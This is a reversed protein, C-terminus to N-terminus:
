RAPPLDALGAGVATYSAPLARIVLWGSTLAATACGAAATWWLGAGWTQLVVADSIALVTLGLAAVAFVAAGVAPGLVAPLVAVTFGDKRRRVALAVGLVVGLLGAVGLALTLDSSAELTAAQRCTVSGPRVALWYRCSSAPLRAGAPLGYVTKTSTLAAIIRAVMGTAGMTLLGAAALRTLTAGAARLVPGRARAWAAANVAAAVETPSGFRRVAEAQAAQLDGAASLQADSADYLHAETEALVRRIHAAPGQLRLALEDLYRQVLDRDGTM